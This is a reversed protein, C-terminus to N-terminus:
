YKINGIVAEKGMFQQGKGLVGGRGLERNFDNHVCQILPLCTNYDIQPCTYCHSTYYLAGPPVNTLLGLTTGM